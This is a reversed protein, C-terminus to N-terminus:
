LGGANMSEPTMAADQVRRSMLGVILPHMQQRVSGNIATRLVAQEIHRELGVLDNNENKITAFSTELTAQETQINGELLFTIRATAEDIENMAREINKGEPDNVRLMSSVREPDAKLQNLSEIMAKVKSEIAYLVAEYSEVRTNLENLRDRYTRIHRGMEDGNISEEGFIESLRRKYFDAVAMWHAMDKAYSAIMQANAHSIERDIRRLSNTLDNSNPEAPVNEIRTVLADIDERSDFSFKEVHPMEDLVVAEEIVSSSDADLQRHTKEVPRRSLFRRYQRLMRERLVSLYLKSGRYFKPFYWAALAVGSVAIGATLDPYNAAIDNFIPQGKGSSYYKDMVERGNITLEVSNAFVDGFVTDGWVINYEPFATQMFELNSIYSTLSYFFGGISAVTYTGVVGAGIGSNFRWDQIETQLRKRVMIAGKGLSIHVADIFEDERYLNSIVYNRLSNLKAPAIGFEASATALHHTSIDGQDIKLQEKIKSWLAQSIESGNQEIIMPFVEFSTRVKQANSTWQPKVLGHNAMENKLETFFWETNLLGTEFELKEVIEYPVSGGQLAQNPILTSSSLRQRPSIQNRSGLLIRCLMNRREGQPFLNTSNQKPEQRPALPGAFSPPAILAFILVLHFFSIKM